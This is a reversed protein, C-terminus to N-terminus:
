CAEVNTKDSKIRHAEDAIVCLWPIAKASRMKSPRSVEKDFRRSRRYASRHQGFVDRHEGFSLVDTQGRAIRALLTYTPRTARSGTRRM